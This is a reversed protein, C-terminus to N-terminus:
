SYTFGMQGLKDDVLLLSFDLDAKNRDFEYRTNARQEAGERNMTILVSVLKAFASMLSIDPNIPLFVLRIDPIKQSTNYERHKSFGRASPNKLKIDLLRRTLMEWAEKTASYIIPSFIKWCAIQPNTLDEEIIISIRSQYDDLFLKVTEPDDPDIPHEIARTRAAENLAALSGAQPPAENVIPKNQFYTRVGAIIGAAKSGITTAFTAANKVGGVYDNQQFTDVTQVINGRQDMIVLSLLGVTAIPAIFPLAGIGAAAAGAMGGGGLMSAGAALGAAAGGAGVVQKAASNISAMVPPSERMLFGDYAVLAGVASSKTYRWMSMGYSEKKEKPVRPDDLVEFYKEYIMAPINITIYNGLNKDYCYGAVMRIFTYTPLFQNVYAVIVQKTKDEIAQRAEAKLQAEIAEKEFDIEEGEGEGGGGTGDLRAKKNASGMKTLGDAGGTDLNVVRRVSGAVSENAGAGFQGPAPLRRPVVGQYKEGVLRLDGKKYPIRRRLACRSKMLKEGTSVWDVFDDKEELNWLTRGAIIIDGVLDKAMIEAEHVRFDNRNLLIEDELFSSSPNVISGAKPKTKPGTTVHEEDEQAMALLINIDSLQEAATADSEIGHRSTRVTDSANNSAKLMSKM